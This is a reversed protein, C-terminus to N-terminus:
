LGLRTTGRIPDVEIKANLSEVFKKTDSQKEIVLPAIREVRKQIEAQEKKLNKLSIGIIPKLKKCNPDLIRTKTTEAMEFVGDFFIGTFVRERPQTDRFTFNGRLAAYDLRFRGHEYIAHGREGISIKSKINEDVSKQPNM